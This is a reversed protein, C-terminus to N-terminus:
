AAPPRGGAALLVDVMRDTSLRGADLVLTFQAPDDVDVHYLWHVWAHKAHDDHKVARLAREHDVLHERRHAEVRRDLPARIRAHVAGPHEGLAAFAAPARIVCPSRAAERLVRRGLDPLHRRRNLELFAEASGLGTAISLAIATPASIGPELRDVDPVEIRNAEALEALATRDYLPVDAAAALRRALEDGGAGEQASITWVAM